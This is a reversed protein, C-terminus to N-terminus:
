LVEEVEYHEEERDVIEPSPRTYNPGHATMKKYPSLLSNHFVLHVHWTKPLVLKSNTPSTSAVKFPSHQQPALKAKPHTTHINTGKPWVLDGTQFMHSPTSPRTYKIIDSAVELAATVGSQVQNMTQLWEKITPITMTFKAPPNFKPRYGYWVEFPSKGTASHAQANHAFKMFPLLDAWNDAQFNCFIHLYQKLEQNVQETEGDTQLHFVTSLASKVGPKEWIKHMVKSTIHVAPRPRIYSEQPPRNM